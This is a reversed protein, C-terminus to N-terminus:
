RNRYKDKIGIDGYRWGKMEVRDIRSKGINDM